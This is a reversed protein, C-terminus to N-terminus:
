TSRPEPVTLIPSCLKLTEAPVHIVCRGPSCCAAYWIRASSSDTSYRQKEYMTGPQQWQQESRSSPKLSPECM